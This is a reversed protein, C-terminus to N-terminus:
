VASFQKRRRAVFGMLGLGLGMMAYIEPEPVPTVSVSSVYFQDPTSGGFKFYFDQSTQNLAFAGYNPSGDPLLATTWNSGDTSYQFQAGTVWGTTNHGEARMGLTGITVVESFSLKLMEGATVNDDSNDTPNVKHYVGLGAGTASAGYLLGNYGDEHDQVVSAQNGNYYGTAYVTIGGSQFTLDGGLVGGGVDSSCLDGGTCFVGDTPQFGYTDSVASGSGDYKLNAFDFVTSAAFASSPLGVFLFLLAIINKKM